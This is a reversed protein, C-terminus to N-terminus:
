HVLYDHENEKLIEETLKCQRPDADCRCQKTCQVEAKRCRCKDKQCNCKNSPLNPKPSKTMRTALLYGKDTGRGFKTPPPLSLKPIMARKWILIKYLARKLHLRFADSTPLLSRIDSKKTKFLYCCPEDLSGLFNKKGYLACMYKSASDLILKSVELNLRPLMGYETFPELIKHRDLTVKLARKKGCNFLYSVTDCGTPAYASLIASGTSKSYRNSLHQSIWHCPIFIGLKQMWLETLGHIM